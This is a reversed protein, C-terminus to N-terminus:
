RLNRFAMIDDHHDKVGINLTLSSSRPLILLSSKELEFLPCTSNFPGDGAIMAGLAIAFSEAM